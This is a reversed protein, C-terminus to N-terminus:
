ETRKPESKTRAQRKSNHHKFQSSSYKGETLRSLKAFSVDHTTRGRHLQAERWDLWEEIPADKTPPENTNPRPRSIDELDPVTPVIIPSIEVLLAETTKSLEEMNREDIYLGEMFAWLMGPLYGTISLKQMEEMANVAAAIELAIHTSSSLVARIRIVGVQTTGIRLTYTASGTTQPQRRYRIHETTTLNFQLAADVTPFPFEVVAQHPYGSSERLSAVIMDASQQAERQMQELLQRTAESPMFDGLWM